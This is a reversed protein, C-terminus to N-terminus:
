KSLVILLVKEQVQMSFKRKNDTSRALGETKITNPLPTNIAIISREANQSNIDHNSM